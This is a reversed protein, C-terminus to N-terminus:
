QQGNRGAAMRPSEEWEKWLSVPSQRFPTLLGKGGVSIVIFGASVVSRKKTESELFVGDYGGHWTMDSESHPLYTM